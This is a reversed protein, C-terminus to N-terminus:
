KKTVLEEDTIEYKTRLEKMAPTIVDEGPALSKLLTNLSVVARPIRQIDDQPLFEWCGRAYNRLEESEKVRQEVKALLQSRVTQNFATKLDAKSIDDRIKRLGDRLYESREYYHNADKLDDKNGGVQEIRQGWPKLNDTLYHQENNLSALSAQEEQLLKCFTIAEMREPNLKSDHTCSVLLGFILFIVSFLFPKM